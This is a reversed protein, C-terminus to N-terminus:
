VPLPLSVLYRYQFLHNPPPGTVSNGSDTVEGVDSAGVALCRVRISRVAVSASLALSVLSRSQFLRTPLPRTESNGM